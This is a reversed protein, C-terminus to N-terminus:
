NNVIFLSLFSKCKEDNGRSWWQFFRPCIQLWEKESFWSIEMTKWIEVKYRTSCKICCCALNKIKKCYSPSLRSHVSDNLEKINGIQKQTHYHRITALNLIVVMVIWNTLKPTFLTTFTQLSDNMSERGNRGLIYLNALFM